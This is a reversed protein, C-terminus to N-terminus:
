LGSNGLNQVRSDHLLAGCQGEALQIIWDHFWPQPLINRQSALDEPRALTRQDVAEGRAVEGQEGSGIRRVLPHDSPRPDNRDESRLVLVGVDRWDYRIRQSNHSRRM